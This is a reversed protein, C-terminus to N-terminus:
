IRLRAATLYLPFNAGRAGVGSQERQLIKQYLAALGYYKIESDVRASPHCYKIWLANKARTSQSSFNLSAQKYVFNWTGGCVVIDPRIINFEEEILDWDSEVAHTLQNDDAIGRGGIKKLNLVASALCEENCVQKAEEFPPFYSTTTHRLGYAWYGLEKWPAKCAWERFDHNGSGTDGLNPDKLLFLVRKGPRNQDWKVQDIIGDKVFRIQEPGAYRNSWRQFLENLQETQTM